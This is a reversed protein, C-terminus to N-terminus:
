KKNIVQTLRHIIVAKGCKAMLIGGIELPSSNFLRLWEPWPNGNFDVAETIVDPAQVIFSKVAM